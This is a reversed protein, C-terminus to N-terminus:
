IQLRHRKVYKFKFQIPRLGHNFLVTHQINSLLSCVDTNAIM